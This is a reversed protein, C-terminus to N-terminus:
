GRLKPEFFKLSYELYKGRAYNFLYITTPNKSELSSDRVVPSSHKGANLYGLWTDRESM